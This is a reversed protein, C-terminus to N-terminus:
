RAPAPATQKQLAVRLPEPLDSAKLPPNVKYPRYLPDGICTNMWSTLPNTKWYVEALTLDGTMLLPFFEDAAPFAHLYPEAVPGLTAVVGDNILGRVWGRENPTRLSVLESSAVHFGVAGESFAMAPVYNRLSYWGCYVAVGRPAEPGPQFLAETDDFTVRLTTKSKLLEALRRITSDYRGYGDEGKLGRGDLAAQGKLGEKEVKISSLIIRDVSQETPGDLRMVMLTPPAGPPVSQAKFNLNNPQWRYRPYNDWWLLALESDFASETEKSECAALQGALLEYYRFLGFHDRVLTRMAALTQPSPPKAALSKVQAAWEAAQEKARAVRPPAIADPPAVRALEPAALRQVTEADGLFKDFLTTMREVARDREPGASMSLAATAVASLADGARRALQAHENGRGPAFDPRLQKALAEAQETAAALDRRAGDMEAQVIQLQEADHAAPVRRAVRLPVGWFTVLCTVKDNLRNDRLFSRVAPVVSQDYRAFPMEEGPFPLDLAVIRGAPIGRKRAYFEALERSAPVNANVVLALQDPELAAARRGASLALLVVSIGALWWRRGPHSLHSPM